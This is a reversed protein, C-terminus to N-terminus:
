GYTGGLPLGLNWGFYEGSIVYGVGLGWLSLPGLTRRLQPTESSPPVIHSMRRLKDRRRTTSYRVPQGCNLARYVIDRARIQGPPNSLWVPFSDRPDAPSRKATDFRVRLLLSSSM